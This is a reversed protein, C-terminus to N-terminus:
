SSSTVPLLTFGMVQFHHDFAFVQKLERQQMVAFSVADVFSFTQDAYNQLLEEAEIELNEDSYVRVLRSTKRLSKLFSIGPEYGLRRRILNYTESIVLNTTVLRPTQRLLQPYTVVATEHYRDRKDALALWAGSDVFIENV